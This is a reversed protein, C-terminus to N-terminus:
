QEEELSDVGSKDMKGFSFVFIATLMCLEPLVLWALLIHWTFEPKVQTIQSELTMIKQNLHRIEDHAAKVTATIEQKWAVPKGSEDVSPYREIVKLYDAKMAQLKAVQTRYKQEIQKQNTLVLRKKVGTLNVVLNFTQLSIFVAILVCGAVLRRNFFYRASWSASLATGLTLVGAALFAVIHPSSASILQATDLFAFSGNLASWTFGGVFLIVLGVGNTLALLRTKANSSSIKASRVGIPRVKPTRGNTPTLTAYRRERRCEKCVSRRGDKSRSDKDFQEILQAGRWHSCISCHKKVGQNQM